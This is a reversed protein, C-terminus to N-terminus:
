LVTFDVKGLEDREWRDQPLELTSKKCSKVAVCNNGLGETIKM